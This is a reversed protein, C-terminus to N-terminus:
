SRPLKQEKEKIKTGWEKVADLGETLKTKISAGLKSIKEIFAEKMKTAIESMKSMLTKGIEEIKPGLESFLNSFEEIMAPWADAVGTILADVIQPAAEVLAMVVTGFNAVLQVFLEVFGAILEPLAGLIGEVLSQIIQPADDILSQIIEPMAEVIGLVLQILGNILEPLATILGDVVAIIIDPLANIIPEIITYFDSVISTILQIIGDILTPALDVITQVLQPALEVIADNITSWLDPLVDVIAQIISTVIQLIAPVASTLGQVISKVGAAVKDAGSMDGKFLDALGDSVQTAAPLLEGIMSNKLGSITNQMKLMSDQFDASATVAEDSMIMGYDHAEKIMQKTADTTTNFLPALNQGSKGFLDNALAARDTSDAMQQFGAITASFLDERSMSQLEDMSIGLQSFMEQADKSGNKADDLKNTLTKLGTTMSSMETGSLQLVYDWEQYAQKSLGLKQSMKDIEDGYASVEQASDVFAKTGAVVATGVAAAAVGVTAVGAKLATGMGSSLSSGIKQGAESASSGSIAGLEKSITEQAGRMSPIIEVTARAVVPSDAMNKGRVTLFHSWSMM